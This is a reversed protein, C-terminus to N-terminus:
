LGWSQKQTHATITRADHRTKVVAASTGLTDEPAADGLQATVSNEGADTDSGRQTGSGGKRWEALPFGIGSDCPFLWPCPVRAHAPHRETNGPPEGQHDLADTSGAEPKQTDAGAKHRVTWSQPTKCGM